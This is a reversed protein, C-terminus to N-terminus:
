KLGGITLVPNVRIQFIEKTEENYVSIINPMYLEQGGLGPSPEIPRYQKQTSFTQYQNGTHFTNREQTM